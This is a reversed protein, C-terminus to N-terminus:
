KNLSFGQSWKPQEKRQGTDKRTVFLIVPIFRYQVSYCLASVTKSWLRELRKM